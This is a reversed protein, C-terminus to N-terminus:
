EKITHLTLNAQFPGDGDLSEIFFIKEFSTNTLSMKMHDILADGLWHKDQWFDVSWILLWPSKSKAKKHSLYNIAKAYTEFSRPLSDFDVNVGINNYHPICFEGNEVREILYRFKGADKIVPTDSLKENVLIDILVEPKQLTLEDIDATKFYLQFLIKQTSYIGRSKIESLIAILYKNRINERKRRLEYTMETVQVGVTHGSNLEIIVDHNGDSDDENPRVSLVDNEFAPLKSILTSVWFVEKLRKDQPLMSSFYVAKATGHTPRFSISAWGHIKDSM